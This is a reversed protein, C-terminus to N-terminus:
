PSPLLLRRSGSLLPRQFGAPLLEFEALPEPGTASVEFTVLAFRFASLHAELPDRRRLAAGESVEAPEAAGSRTVTIASVAPQRVLFRFSPPTPAFEFWLRRARQGVFVVLGISAAAAVV